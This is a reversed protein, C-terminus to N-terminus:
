GIRSRDSTCHDRARANGHIIYDNNSRLLASSTEVSMVQWGGRMLRPLGRMLEKGLMWERGTIKGRMIIADDANQRAPTLCFPLLEGTFRLRVVRSLSLLKGLLM